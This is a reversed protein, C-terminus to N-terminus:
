LINAPHLDTETDMVRSYAQRTTRVDKEKIKDIADDSLKNTTPGMTSFNDIIGNGFTEYAYIGSDQFFSFFQLHKIFYYYSNWVTDLKIEEKMDSITLSTEWMTM